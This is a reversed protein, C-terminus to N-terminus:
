LPLQGWLVGVDRVRGHEAGLSRPVARAPGARVRRPPRLLPCAVFLGCHPRLPSDELVSEAPTSSLHRADLDRHIDFGQIAPSNVRNGPISALRPSPGPLLPPNSNTRVWHGATPSPSNGPITPNWPPEVHDPGLRVWSPRM